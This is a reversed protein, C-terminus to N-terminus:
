ARKKKTTLKRTVSKMAVFVMAFEQLRRYRAMFMEADRLAESVLQERLDADSLVSVMTRYGATPGRDNKLSVFVRVPESTKLGPIVAVVVRILRAAEGLRYAEAAEGDDWTFFPHLPSNKTRAANLVAKARLFGRHKKSIARLEEVVVPNTLKSM